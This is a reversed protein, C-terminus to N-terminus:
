SKGMSRADKNEELPKFIYFLASNSREVIKRQKAPKGEYDKLLTTIQPEIKFMDGKRKYKRMM